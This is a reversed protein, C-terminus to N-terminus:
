IEEKSTRNRPSEFSRIQSIKLLDDTKNYNPAKKDLNFLSNRILKTEEKIQTFNQNLIGFFLSNKKDRITNNDSITNNDIM